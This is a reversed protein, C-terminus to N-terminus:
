SGFDNSLDRPMPLVDLVGKRGPLPTQLCVICHKQLGLPQLAATATAHQLCAHLSRLGAGQDDACSLVCSQHLDGCAQMGLQSHRQQLLHTM